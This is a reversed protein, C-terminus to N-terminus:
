SIIIANFLIPTFGSPSFVKVGNLIGQFFAAISIVLLYPFMLRTLFVTETTKLGFLPVILPTVLIGSIVAITTVFTLFTFMASLFEGTRKRDDRELYQRFTPIFAVSVSNEAFLRRLLNPIMFAITFADSLATTGLFAAKTMERVLGLVRSGLTLVSLSAGSKALSKAMTRALM